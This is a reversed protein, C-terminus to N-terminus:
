YIEMKAQSHIFSHISHNPRSKSQRSQTAANQQAREGTQKETNQPILTTTTNKRWNRVSNFRKFPHRGSYKQVFHREATSHFPSGRNKGAAPNRLTCWWYLNIQLKPITM